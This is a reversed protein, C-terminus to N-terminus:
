GAAGEIFRLLRASPRFWEGRVREPAYFTHLAQETPLAGAISGLLNLPEPHGIQLQALRGSPNKAVGIKIGGCSAQIFYVFSHPRDCDKCMSAPDVPLEPNGLAALRLVEYAGTEVFLDLEEPSLRIGRGLELHRSLRRDLDRLDSM